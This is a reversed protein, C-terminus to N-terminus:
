LHVSLVGGALISRTSARTAAWRHLGGIRSRRGSGTHAHMADFVVRGEATRNWGEYVYERIVRGSLSAGDWLNQGRIWFPPEPQRRFRGARPASMSLLNRIGLFGLNMVRSGETEYIFEYIWGPKFGGRVHLDIDSPILVLKGDQMEARALEWDSDAVPQRADQEHERVTLRATSRDLVRYPQVNEGGEAGASM